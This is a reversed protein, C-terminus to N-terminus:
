TLAEGRIVRQYLNRDEPSLLRFGVFKGDEYLLEDLIGDSDYYLLVGDEDLGGLAEHVHAVVAEADNTVSMGHKHGVDRIVVFSPAAHVTIYRAKM